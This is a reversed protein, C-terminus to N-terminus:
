NSCAVNTSIEGAAVGPISRPYAYSFSQIQHSLLFGPV